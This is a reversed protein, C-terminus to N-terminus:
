RIPQEFWHMGDLPNGDAVFRHGVTIPSWWLPYKFNVAVTIDAQRTSRAEMPGFLQNIGCPLTATQDSSLVSIKGGPGILNISELGEHLM